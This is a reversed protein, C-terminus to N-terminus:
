LATGYCRVDRSCESNQSEASMDCYELVLCVFYCSFPQSLSSSRLKKSKMLFIPTILYLANLYAPRTVRNPSPNSICVSILQYVEFVTM